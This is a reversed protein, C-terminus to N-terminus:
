RISTRDAQDLAMEGTPVSYGFSQALRQRHLPVLLALLLFWFLVFYPGTIAEVRTMAERFTVWTSLFPSFRSLIRLIVPFALLPGVGIVLATVMTWMLERRGSLRRLLTHLVAHGILFVLLYFACKAIWVDTSGVVPPNLLISAAGTTFLIGFVLLLRLVRNRLTIRDAVALLVALAAALAQLSECIGTWRYRDLYYVIHTNIYNQAVHFVLSVAALALVVSWAQRTRNNKQLLLAFLLFWVFVQRLSDGLPCDVTVASGERPGLTGVDQQTAVHLV